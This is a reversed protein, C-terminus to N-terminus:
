APSYGTRSAAEPDFGLASELFSVALEIPKDAGGAAARASAERMVDLTMRATATIEGPVPLRLVGAEAGAQLVGILLGVLPEQSARGPNAM